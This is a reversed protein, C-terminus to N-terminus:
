HFPGKNHYKELLIIESNFHKVFLKKTSIKEPGIQFVLSSKKQFSEGYCIPDLIYNVSDTPRVKKKDGRKLLFFPFDAAYALKDM